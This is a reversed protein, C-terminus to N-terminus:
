ATEIELEVGGVWKAAINYFFAGIIGGIFGMIIYLVPMGIVFLLGFGSGDPALSSAILMFPIFILSLLAYVVALLKGFQLPAIRKVKQTM